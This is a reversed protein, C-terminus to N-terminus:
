AQTGCRLPGRQRQGVSVSASSTEKSGTLVLGATPEVRLWSGVPLYVKVGFSAFRDQRWGSESTNHRGIQQSTMVGTRSVDFEAPDDDDSARVDSLSVDHAVGSLHSM